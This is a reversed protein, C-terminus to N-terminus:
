PQQTQPPPRRFKDKSTDVRPYVTDSLCAPIPDHTWDINDALYRHEAAGAVAWRKDVTLCHKHMVADNPGTALRVTPARNTCPQHVVQGGPARGNATPQHRNTAPPDGPPQDREGPARNTATPRGDQEASM